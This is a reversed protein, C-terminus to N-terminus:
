FLLEGLHRGTMPNRNLQGLPQWEIAKPKMSLSPSASLRQLRQMGANEILQRIANETDKMDKGSKLWWVPVWEMAPPLQLPQNAGIPEQGCPVVVQWPQWRLQEKGAQSPSTVALDLLYLPVLAARSFQRYRGDTGSCDPRYDQLAAALGHCWELYDQRRPSVVAVFRSSLCGLGALSVIDKCALSLQAADPPGAVVTGALADGFGKVTAQPLRQRFLEVTKDQGFVQVGHCKKLAEDFEGDTSVVKMRVFSFDRLAGLFRALVAFSQRSSPRVFVRLGLAAALTLPYFGAVPHTSPLVILWPEGERGSAQSSLDGERCTKGTIQAIAGLYDEKPALFSASLDALLASHVNELGKKSLDAGRLQRLDALLDDAFGEDTLLSQWMGRLQDIRASLPPLSREAEQAQGEAAADQQGASHTASSSASAGLQPLSEGLLSCGKLPATQVRGLLKFRGDGSLDVRDETEILYPTDIRRPDYLVLTGVGEQALRLQRSKTGLQPSKETAVFVKVYPAFAFRRSHSQENDQLNHPCFDYAQAALECSGYESIIQQDKIAMSACLRQYFHERTISHHQGKTGGTELLWTNHDLSFNLGKTLLELWHLATALIVIHQKPDNKLQQYCHELQQSTTYHLPWHDGFAEVMYALSSTPWQELDTGFTPAESGKAHSSYPPVMSILQVQFVDAASASASASLGTVAQLVEAFHTVAADRYEKLGAESFASRSRLAGTTGSSLFERSIGEGKFAIREPCWKYASVPLSHGCAAKPGSMLIPGGAQQTVTTVQRLPEDSPAPNFPYPFELNQAM